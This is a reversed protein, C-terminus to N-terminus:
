SDSSNAANWKPLVVYECSASWAAESTGPQLDLIDITNTTPGHNTLFLRYKGGQKQVHFGLPHFPMADPYGKVEILKPEAATGSGYEYTWLAGRPAPDDLLGLVTNWKHRGPDCAFIAVGLEEILKGDECYALSQLEWDSNHPAARHWPDPEAANLNHCQPPTQPELGMRDLVPVTSPRVFTGPLKPDRLVWMLRPVFLFVIPGVVALFLLGKWSDLFGEKAELKRTPLSAETAAGSDSGGAAALPAGDQQAAEKEMGNM